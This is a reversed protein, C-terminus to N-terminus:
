ESALEGTIEVEDSFALLLPGGDWQVLILRRGLNELEHVITGQNGAEIMVAHSRIIRKARCRIGAKSTDIM